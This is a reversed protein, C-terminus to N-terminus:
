NETKKGEEDLINNNNNNNNNHTNHYFFYNRSWFKFYRIYLFYLLLIIFCLLIINKVPKLDFIDLVRKGLNSHSIGDVIDDVGDGLLEAIRRLFTVKECKFVYDPNEDLKPYPSFAENSLSALINFNAPDCLGNCGLSIIEESSKTNQFRAFECDWKPKDYLPHEEESVWTVDANDGWNNSVDSVCFHGRVKQRTEVLYLDDTVGKNRDNNDMENTEMESKTRRYRFCGSHRTQYDMCINYLVAASTIGVSYKVLKPHTKLLKYLKSVVGAKRSSGAGLVIKRAFDQEDEFGLKRALTDSQRLRATSFVNTDTASETATKLVKPKKGDLFTTLKRDISLSNGGEVSSLISTRPRSAFVGDSGVSVGSRHLLPSDLHFPDVGIETRRGIDGIFDGIGQIGRRAMKKFLNDSIYLIVM